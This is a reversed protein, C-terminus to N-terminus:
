CTGKVKATAQYVEKHEIAYYTKGNVTVRGMKKGERGSTSCMTSCESKAMSEAKEPTDACVTIIQPVGASKSEFAIDRYYQDNYYVTTVQVSVTVEYKTQANINYIGFFAAFFLAFLVKKM